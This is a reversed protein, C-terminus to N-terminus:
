GLPPTGGPDLQALFGACRGAEDVEGIAAAPDGSDGVAVVPLRPQLAGGWRVYGSGRWGAARLADLGRHTGSEATPTPRWM